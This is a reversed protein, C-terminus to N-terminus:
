NTLTSIEPKPGWRSPLLNLRGVVDFALIASSEVKPFNSFKTTLILIGHDVPPNFVQVADREVSLIGSRVSSVEFDGAPYINLATKWAQGDESVKISFIDHGTGTLGIEARGSYATNFLLSATNTNAERNINIRHSPSGDFLSAPGRALLVNTTDAEAGIGVVKLNNLTQNEGSIAASETHWNQGGFVYAQESSTDYVRWGIKPLRFTWQEGDYSALANAHNTLPLSPTNSLLIRTGAVATEPLTQVDIQKVACNLLVDLTQLAENHTIYKLSQAPALLPLNQYLTAKSM